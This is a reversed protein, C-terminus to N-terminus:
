DQTNLKPAVVLHIQLHNVLDIISSTTALLGDEIVLSSLLNKVRDTVYFFNQVIILCGDDEYAFDSVYVLFLKYFFEVGFTKTM